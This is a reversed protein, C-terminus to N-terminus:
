FQPTHGYGLGDDLVADMDISRDRLLDDYYRATGIELIRAEVEELTQDISLQLQGKKVVTVKYGEAGADRYLEKPDFPVVQVVDAGLKESEQELLRSFNHADGRDQFAVTHVMGSSKGVGEMAPSMDVSYLGSQVEGEITSQLGLCLVYPLDLWWLEPEEQEPKYEGYKNMMAERGFLDRQEKIKAKTKEYHMRVYEQEGEVGKELLRNAEEIEEETIWRDLDQGIERMLARTEPDKELEYKRQLDQAWRKTNQWSDVPEEENEGKSPLNPTFAAPRGSSTVTTKASGSKIEKAKGQGVNTAPVQSQSVSPSVPSSSSQKPRVDEEDDLSPSSTYDLGSQKKMIRKRDENFKKAFDSTQGSPEAGERWKVTYSEPPDMLSVGDVGYDINEVRDKIWSKVRDGEREFKRELGKFFRKEQESNLNFFPERGAEENAQVKFVIDRLVEDSMWEQEEEEEKSSKPRKEGGKGVIIEEKKPEPLPHESSGQVSTKSSAGNLSAGNDCQGSQVAPVPEADLRSVQGNTTVRDSIGGVDPNLDEQSTASSFDQSLEKPSDRSAGNVVEKAIGNAAEAAAKARKSKIKAKMNESFGAKGPSSSSDGSELRARKAAISARAEKPSLIIRPKVGASPQAPPAAKGNTPLTSEPKKPLGNASASYSGSKSSNLKQVTPPKGNQPKAAVESGLNPSKGKFNMDPTSTLDDDPSGLRRVDDLNKALSELEKARNKEQMEEEMSRQRQTRELNKAFRLDANREEQLRAQRAMARIEEVKKQFEGDEFSPKLEPGQNPTVDVVANKAEVEPPERKNGKADGGKKSPDEEIVEPNEIVQKQNMKAKLKRMKMLRAEQEDVVPNPVKPKRGTWWKYAFGGVVALAFITVFNIKQLPSPLYKQSTDKGSDWRVSGVTTEQGAKQFKYLVSLENPEYVGEVIKRALSNAKAINREGVERAEDDAFQPFLPDVGSRLWIEDEDVDVKYRNGQADEYVTFIPNLGIGWEERDAKYVQHQERLNHLFRKRKSELSERFQKYEEKSRIEAEVRADRDEAENAVDIIERVEEVDERNQGEEDGDEEESDQERRSASAAVVVGRRQTGFRLTGNLKQRNFAASCGPLSVSLSCVPSRLLHMRIGSEFELVQENFGEGAPQRATSLNSVRCRRRQKGVGSHRFDYPNWLFRSRCSSSFPSFVISNMAQWSPCTPFSEEGGRCKSPVTLLGPSTPLVVMAM